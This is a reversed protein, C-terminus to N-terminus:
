QPTRLLHLVTNTHMLAVHWCAHTVCLCSTVQPGSLGSSATLKNSLVRKCQQSTCRRTTCGESQTYSPQMRVQGNMFAEVVGAVGAWSQAVASTRSYCCPSALTSLTVADPHTHGVLDTGPDPTQQLMHSHLAPNGRKDHEKYLCVMLYCAKDDPVHSAKLSPPAM